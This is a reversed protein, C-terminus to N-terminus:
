WKQHIFIIILLFLKYFLIRQEVSLWHLQKLNLAPKVHDTFTSLFSVNNEDGYGKVCVM